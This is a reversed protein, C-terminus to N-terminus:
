YGILVGVELGLVIVSTRRHERAVGVELADLDDGAVMVEIGPGKHHMEHAVGHVTRQATVAM